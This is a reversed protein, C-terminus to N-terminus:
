VFKTVRACKVSLSRFLELLAVVLLIRQQKMNDVGDAADKRSVTCESGGNCTTSRQEFHLENRLSEDTELWAGYECPELQGTHQM